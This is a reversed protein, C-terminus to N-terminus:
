HLLGICQNLWHVTLEDLLSNVCTGAIDPTGSDSASGNINDGSFSIAETNDVNGRIGTESERNLSM